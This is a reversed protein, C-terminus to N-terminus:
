EFASITRSVTRRHLLLSILIYVEHSVANEKDDGRRSRRLKGPMRAPVPHDKEPHGHPRHKEPCQAAATQTVVVDPVAATHRAVDRQGHQQQAAHEARHGEESNEDRRIFRAAINEPEDDNRNRADNPKPKRDHPQTPALLRHLRNENHPGTGETPVSAEFDDVPITLGADDAVQTEIVLGNVISEGRLDDPNRVVQLFHQFIRPDPKVLRVEASLLIGRFWKLFEFRKQAFPFTEASWNSLAYLPVDRARLEALVDVTGTIPGAMMEDFRAFWADIMEAHSPHESRLSTCADAFTRGADQQLNWETTCIKALFHEMAGDDGAFLKRYLHRPNWDILVGGLDFVVTTRTSM